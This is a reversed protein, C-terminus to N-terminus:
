LKIDKKKMSRFKNTEDTPFFVIDSEELIQLLRRLEMDKEKKEPM